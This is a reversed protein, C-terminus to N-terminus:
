WGSAEGERRPDVGGQLGGAGILVAHLGSNQEAVEVKHGMAELSRKVADREGQAWGEDELETKGNLNVLHPLSVARQPDLGWELVGLLARVVHGIIRSGGASGLALVPAGSAADFVMMPAMSSRPRKGPAVANAVERDKGPDFSFDTLQNNLMFGDVRLHSGFVYEVSTTMSVVRGAADVVVFHSTSPLEPAPADAWAARAGPPMGAAARGMDRAPDILAARSALYKADLLGEVPVDVLDADAVYRDRDAFALREAEAILHLAQPDNERYSKGLQRPELMALVQLVAIAGSSPPGFGCVRWSRYPRCVPEREKATYAALDEASLVGPNPVDAAVDMGSPAGMKLLTKNLLMAAVPPRVAQAVATEIDRAIPGRYFADAGGEAIARMVRALEPNKLVTGAPKARGDAGYFYDRTSPATRLVADLQALRGLRPSMAFGQECLRIAPQFLARWPLAGHQRQALELARLAGPVGVSRGGIVAQPMGWPKGDDHMFLGPTARAPATERGDFTQLKRAKPDYHLIFAGGGIGSSQPEVLTLVAQIAVTADIASGGAKLIEAGAASALPNATVVMVQGTQVLTPTRRGTAFEPPGEGFTWSLKLVIVLAIVLLLAAGIGLGLRKLVKM